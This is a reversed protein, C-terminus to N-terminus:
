QNEMSLFPSPYLALFMLSLSVDILQRRCVAGGAGGRGGSPIHGCSIYMGKVLILGPVKSDAPWHEVWQALGTKATVTM